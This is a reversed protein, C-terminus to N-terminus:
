DIRGLRNWYIKYRASRFHSSVCYKKIGWYISENKYKLPKIIYCSLSEFVSYFAKVLPISENEEVIFM